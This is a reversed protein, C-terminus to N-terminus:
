SKGQRPSQIHGYGEIHSKAFGLWWPISRFLYHFPLLFSIKQHTLKYAIASDRLGITLVIPFSRSWPVVPDRYKHKHKRYHYGYGYGMSTNWVHNWSGSKHYFKVDSVSFPWGAEMMRAILDIDEGCRKIRTDFGGVQRIAKVRFIGHGDFVSRRTIRLLLSLNELKGTLSTRNTVERIGRAGGLHPNKKMFEVLKQVYDEPVVTDADAWVLYEGRANDVVIQRAVGLGTGGDSYIKAHMDMRSIMDTVISLTKDISDGDVVILEMLENPYTQNIVGNIAEKVTKEGNKVCLGVTVKIETKAKGILRIM